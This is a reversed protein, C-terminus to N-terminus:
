ISQSYTASMRTRLPLEQRAAHLGMVVYWAMTEIVLARETIGAVGTEAGQVTSTFTAFFVITLVLTLPGAVMLWRGVRQWRPLKRLLNGCIPFGFISTLALGFGMFHIFFFTLNFIGDVVVGLAPLTLLVFLTRRHALGPEDRPSRLIGVVGVMILLGSVVFTTNM